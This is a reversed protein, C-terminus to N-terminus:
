KLFVQFAELAWYELRLILLFLLRIISINSIHRSNTFYCPFLSSNSVPSTVRHSWCFSLKTRIKKVFIYFIWFWSKYISDSNRCSSESCQSFFSDYYLGEWDGRVLPSFLFSIQGSPPIPLCALSLIKNGRSDPNLERDPCWFVLCLNFTISSIFM